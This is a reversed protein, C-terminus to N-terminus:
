TFYSFVIKELFNTFTIIFVNKKENEDDNKRKEDNPVTNYCDIVDKIRLFCPM